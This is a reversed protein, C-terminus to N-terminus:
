VFMNNLSYIEVEEKIAIWDLTRFMDGLRGKTSLFRKALRNEYYENFNMLGFNNVIM